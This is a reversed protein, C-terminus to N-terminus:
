TPTTPSDVVVILNCQVGRVQLEADALSAGLRQVARVWARKRHDFCTWSPELTM